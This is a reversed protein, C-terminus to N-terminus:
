SGDYEHISSVKSVIESVERFDQCAPMNTRALFDEILRTGINYGRDFCNKDVLHKCLYVEVSVDQRAAQQGRRLRRLRQDVTGSASWIDLHVARCESPMRPSCKISRHLQNSSSVVKETRNKWADEGVTKYQKGSM